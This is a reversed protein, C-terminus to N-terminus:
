RSSVGRQVAHALEGLSRAVAGLYGAGFLNFHNLLHYLAYLEARREAGSPLPWATEYADYFATGFGGFLRTMALDAERDGYYVAPDLLYPRGDRAALWNGGWLDGHLLSPAPAHDGLVRELGDLLRAGSDRSARPLGNSAALELQPGLRHDRWFELWDGTWENRQPTAGITNDRGWGFRAATRGHQAALGRGLAAEAATSRPGPEIWELALYAREDTRGVALVRPVDLAEAAALEALGLAEARFMEVRDAANLKLVVPGARSDCRLADNIGGGLPALTAAALGLDAAADIREILQAVAARHSRAPRTM